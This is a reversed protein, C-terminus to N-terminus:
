DGPAQRGASERQALRNATLTRWLTKRAGPSSSLEVLSPLRLVAASGVLEPAPGGFLGLETEPGFVLVHTFMAEEVAEALELGEDAAPWAWVPRTGLARAVDTALKGAPESISGCLLMLQGDGPGLQIRGRPADELSKEPAGGRAVWVPIGMADLYARQRLTIM